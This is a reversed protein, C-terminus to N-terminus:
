FRLCHPMVSVWGPLVRLVARESYGGDALVVVEANGANAVLVKSFTAVGDTNASQSYSSSGITLRVSQGLELDRVVVETAVDRLAVKPLEVVLSYATPTWLFLFV